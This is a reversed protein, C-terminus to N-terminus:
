PDTRKALKSMSAIMLRFMMRLQGFAPRQGNLLRVTLCRRLCRRAASPKGAQAYALTLKYYNDAILSRILTNYKFALQANVHEYMRITDAYISLDNMQRTLGESHKRHASMVEPLCGIKGEAAHMIFIPWDGWKLTFFWDPFGRLLGISNRLLVSSTQMFVGRLVDEIDSFERFKEPWISNHGPWNPALNSPDDYFWTVPHFCVSCEPHSELFDVQKQLKDPATWYDDGELLVVYRAARERFVKIALREKSLIGINRPAFIAVMRDPFKRAYSSVIEQTNDTSCDDAVYLRYAFNAKQMLVSEIAQAVYQGHNYTPMVVDVLPVSNM